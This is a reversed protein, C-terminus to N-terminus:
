ADGGSDSPFVGSQTIAELASPAKSKQWRDYLLVLDRTTEGLSTAVALESVVLAYQVFHISLADLANRVGQPAMPHDPMLVTSENSDVLTVANAYALMGLRETVARHETAELFGAACLAHDGVLKLATARDGIPVCRAHDYAMVLSSHPVLGTRFMRSSPNARDVLLQGIYATTDSSASVKCRQLAQDIADTFFSQLNQVVTITM